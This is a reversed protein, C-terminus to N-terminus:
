YCDNKIVFVVEDGNPEIKKVDFTYTGYTDITIVDTESIEGREVSKSLFEMVEKVTM